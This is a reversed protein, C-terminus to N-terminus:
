SATETEGGRGAEGRHPGHPRTLHPSAPHTLNVPQSRSSFSPSEHSTHILPFPSLALTNTHVRTTSIPVLPWDYTELTAGETASMRGKQRKDRRTMDGRVRNTESLRRRTNEEKVKIKKFRGKRAERWSIQAKICFGRLVAIM